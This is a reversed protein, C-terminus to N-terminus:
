TNYLTPKPVGNLLMEKLSGITTNDTNKFFITIENTQGGVQQTDLDPSGTTNTGGSQVPVGITADWKVDSFWAGENPRKEVIDAQLSYTKTGNNSSRFHIDTITLGSCQIWVNRLTKFVESEKNYMITIYGAITEDSDYYGLTNKNHEYIGSRAPQGGVLVVTAQTLFTNKYPIFGDCTYRYFSGYDNIGDHENFALLYNSNRYIEWYNLQNTIVSPDKGTPVNIRAKFYYKFFTVQSFGTYVPVYVIDGATYPSAIDYLTAGPVDTKARMLIEQSWADWGFLISNEAGIFQNNASMFTQIFDQETLVRIGDAGRRYVKNNDPNGWITFWHGTKTLYQLSGSKLPSGFYSIIKELAGLVSGDGLILAVSNPDTVVQQQDLLQYLVAGEMMIILANEDNFTNTIRGYTNSYAKYNLPKFIRFPDIPSDILALESYYLVNPQSTSRPLSADYAPFSQIPNFPTYSTSYRLEGEDLSNLNLWTVLSLTTYPFNDANGITFNRMQYNGRNQSYFSIGTRLKYAIPETPPSGSAATDANLDSYHTTSVTAIKKWGAANLRWVDYSTAGPIQQWTLDLGQGNNGGNRLISYIGGGNATSDFFSTYVTAVIIYEYTFNDFLNVAVGSLTGSLLFASLNENCFKMTTKQTFTDGGFVDEAYSTTGSILKMFHGCSIYNGQTELGYKGPSARFYQAYYFGYDTNGSLPLISLGTAEFALSAQQCGAFNPSTSVLTNYKKSGMSLVSTSNFNVFDANSLLYDTYNNAFDGNFENLALVAPSAAPETSQNYAVPQGYVRMVDFAQWAISQQLFSLDPSLFAGKDRTFTAGPTLRSAEEGAWYYTADTASQVMAYGTALVEPIVPLRVISIGYIADDFPIGDITPATSTDIAFHPHYIYIITPTDIDTLEGTAHIITHDKIFYAASVFGNAHFVIGGFRYTENLMYGTSNTVNEPIMYEAVNDYLRGIANLSTRITTVTITKFWASLNTELQITIDSIFLWNRAIVNNGCDLIVVQSTVLEAISIGVTAEYGTHVIQVSTGTIEYKGIIKASFAGDINEVCVIEFHDYVVPNLQTILLGISKGTPQGGINGKLRTNSLGDAFIPIPNSAISFGSKSTTGMLQRVMYLKDGTTLAGTELVKVAPDLEAIAFNEVVQLRTNTAVNEFTYVGDPNGTEIFAPNENWIFANQTTWTNQLKFYTVRPPQGSYYFSCRNNFALNYSFDVLNILSTAYKIQKTQFVSVNTWTQTAEDKVAVDIGLIGGNTKLIFLNNGDNVSWLRVFAGTVDGLFEHIVQVDFSASDITETLIFDGGSFKFGVHVEQPTTSPAAIYVSGSIGTTAANLQSVLDAYRAANSGAVSNITYPTGNITIVHDIDIDAILFTIRYAKYDVSTQYGLDFEFENGTTLSAAGLNPASNDSLRINEADIYKDPPVSKPIFDKVMGLFRRIETIFPLQKRM